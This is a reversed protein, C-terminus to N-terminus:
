ALKGPLNKIKSVAYLLAPARSGPNVMITLTSEESHLSFSREPFDLMVAKRVSEEFSSFAGLMLDTDARRCAQGVIEFNTGKAGKAPCLTM